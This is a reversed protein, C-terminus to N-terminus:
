ATKPSWNTLFSFGLLWTLRHFLLLLPNFCLLWVKMVESCASVSACMSHLSVRMDKHDRRVDDDMLIAFVHTDTVHPTVCVCVKKVLCPPGTMKFIHSLDNDTTLRLVAHLFLKWLHIELKFKLIDFSSSM